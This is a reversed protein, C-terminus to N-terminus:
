GQCSTSWASAPTWCSGGISSEVSQDKEFIDIKREEGDEYVRFDERRLDTVFAGSSSQVTAFVNVLDVDVRVTTQAGAAQLLLSM